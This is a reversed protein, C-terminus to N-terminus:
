LVQHPVQSIEDRATVLAGLRPRVPQGYEIPRDLQEIRHDPTDEGVGVRCEQFAGTVYATMADLVAIATDALMPLQGPGPLAFGHGSVAARNRRDLHDGPEPAAEVVGM